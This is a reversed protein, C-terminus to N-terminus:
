KRQHQYPRRGRLILLEGQYRDRSPELELLHHAPQCVRRRKGPVVLALHVDRLRPARKLLFGRRGPDEANLGSPRRLDDVQGVFPHPGGHDTKGPM